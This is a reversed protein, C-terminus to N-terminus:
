FKKIKKFEKIAIRMASAVEGWQDPDVGQEDEAGGDFFEEMTYLLQLIGKHDTEFLADSLAETEKRNSAEELTSEELSKLHAVLDSSKGKFFGKKFDDGKGKWYDFGGLALRQGVGYGLKTAQKLITDIKAENLAEPAQGSLILAAAKTTEDNTNYEM